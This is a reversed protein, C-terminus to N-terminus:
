GSLDRSRFEIVQGEYMTRPQYDLAPGGFPGAIIKGAQVDWMFGSRCVRELDLDTHCTPCRGESLECREALTLTM